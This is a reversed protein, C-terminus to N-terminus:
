DNSFLFCFVCRFNCISTPEIQLYPPFNDLTRTQPYIKTGSNKGQSVEKYIFKDTVGITINTKSFLSGFKGSVRVKIDEANIVNSM